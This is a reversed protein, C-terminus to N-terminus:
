LQGNPFQKLFLDNHHKRFLKLREEKEKLTMQLNEIIFLMLEILAEETTQKAQIRYDEISMRQCVTTPLSPCINKQAFSINRNIEKKLESPIKFMQCQNRVMLSVLKHASEKDKVDKPLIASMFKKVMFRGNSTGKCTGIFTLLHRLHKRQSAGLMMVLLPLFNANKTWDKVGVSLIGDVLDTLNSPILSDQLSGYYESLLQHIQAEDINMVNSYTVEGHQALPCEKQLEICEMGASVWVNGSKSNSINEKNQIDNLICPEKVGNHIAPFGTTEDPLPSTLIDELFPIDTLRLLQTLAVEFWVKTTLDEQDSSDALVTSKSKRLILGPDLSLRRRKKPAEHTRTNFIEPSETSMLLDAFRKQAKPTFSVSKRRGAPKKEKQGLLSKRRNVKRQHQLPSSFIPELLGDGSSFRYLKNNEEFTDRKSNDVCVCEIVKKELLIQCLSKVQSRTAEKSLLPNSHIYSQLVEVVDGGRFCNEYYQFKWRRRRQEVQTQLHAILDKWIKTAKFPEHEVVDGNGRYNAPKNENM